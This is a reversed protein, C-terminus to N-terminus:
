ASTIVEWAGNARLHLKDTDAVYVVTGDAVAGLADRAANDAVSPAAFAGAAFAATLDAATSIVQWAGNVRIQYEDTDEQYVITGDDVAGLAVLAANDAVTPAAFAGAALAAALAAATSIVQWAGNARIQYADTDLQYVVTGDAVAGLAALAAADAVTPVAFSGAAADDATRLAKWAGDKRLYLVDTDLQYALDGDNVGTLAALAAADAVRPVQLPVPNSDDPTSELLKRAQEREAPSLRTSDAYDPTEITAGADAVVFSFWGARNTELYSKADDGVIQVAGVRPWSWEKYAFRDVGAAALLTASHSAM